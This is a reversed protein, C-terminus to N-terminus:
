GARCRSSSPTPRDALQVFDLLEDAKRRVAARTMGFYRGYTLINERVTLEEDLTDRQPV